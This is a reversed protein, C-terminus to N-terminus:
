LILPGYAITLDADATREGPILIGAVAEAIVVTESTGVIPTERMPDASAESIGTVHGRLKSFIFLDGVADAQPSSTAPMRRTRKVTGSASSVVSVNAIMEGTLDPIVSAASTAPAIGDITWTGSARAEESSSADSEGIIRRDRSATASKLAGTFSNGSIRRTRSATASADSVPTSTGSIYEEMIGTATAAAEASATGQVTRVVSAVAVQSSTCPVTAKAGFIMTPDASQNSGTWSFGSIEVPLIERDFMVFAVDRVLLNPTYSSPQYQLEGVITKLTSYTGNTGAMSSEPIGSGGDSGSHLQSTGGYPSVISYGSDIRFLESFSESFPNTTHAAIRGIAVLGGSTPQFSAGGLTNIAVPYYSNPHTASFGYQSFRNLRLLFLHGYRVDLVGDGRGHVRINKYGGWSTIWMGNLSFGGMGYSGIRREHSSWQQSLTADYLRMGALYGSSAYSYFNLCAFVAYVDSGGNPLSSIGFLDTYSAPVNSYSGMSNSIWDWDVGPMSYEKLYPDLEIAMVGTEYAYASPSAGGATYYGYLGVNGDVFNTATWVTQTYYPCTAIGSGGSQPSTYYSSMSDMYSGDIYPRFVVTCDHSKASAWMM